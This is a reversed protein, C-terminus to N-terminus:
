IFVINDSWMIAVWSGAIREFTVWGIQASPVQANSITATFASDTSRVVTIRQGNSVGVAPLTYVRAATIAPIIYTHVGATLTETADAATASTYLIGVSSAGFGLTSNFTNAGTWTNTGSLSPAADAAAKLYGLRDGISDFYTDTVTEQFVDADTPVTITAAWSAATDITLSKSM